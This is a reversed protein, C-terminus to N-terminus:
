DSYLENVNLGLAGASIQQSKANIRLGKVTNYLTSSVIEHNKALAYLKIRNMKILGARIEPLSFGLQRLCRLAGRNRNGQIGEPGDLPAKVIELSSQLPKTLLTNNEKLLQNTAELNVAIKSLVRNIEPDLTIELNTGLGPM